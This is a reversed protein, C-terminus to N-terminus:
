RKMIYALAYYAVPFDSEAGTTGGAHTHGSVTWITHSHGQSACWSYYGDAFQMGSMDAECNHTHSGGSGTTGGAHTHGSNSGGSAGVAPSSSGAGRVFKDVLNPTGNTGDCLAWDSPISAVSGSWLIIGGQPINSGAPSGSSTGPGVNGHAPCLQGGALPRSCYPCKDM